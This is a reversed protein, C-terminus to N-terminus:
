DLNLHLSIFSDNMRIFTTKKVVQCGCCCRGASNTFPLNAAAPDLGCVAGGLFGRKSLTASTMVTWQTSTSGLFFSPCQRQILTIGGKNSACRWRWVM